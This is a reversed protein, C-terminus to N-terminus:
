KDESQTPADKSIEGDIQETKPANRGVIERFESVDVEKVNRAYVKSRLCVGSYDCYACAKIKEEGKVNLPSKAIYGEEIERSAKEALRMVYNCADDFGDASLLEGQNQASYIIEGTKKITKRKIPYVASAFDFNGNFGEDLDEAGDSNVFGNYMYRKEVKDGGKVFRNNMLLYFVGQPTILGSSRLANLYVFLQIRDGYLINSPTFDIGSKSKYDIVIAKNRYTDIRDIIGNFNLKRYGNYIEMGAMDANSDSGFRAELKYPRFKSVQMNAVLRKVVYVAQNILQNLTLANSKEEFLFAYDANKGVEDKFIDRVIEEIEAESKDACDKLSFYREMVTHLLIGTDKVELGAVDKRKLNLVFENFHLFPCKFYKEFQSVSTREGNFMVDGVGDLQLEEVRGGLLGDVYNRGKQRCAITYMVDMIEDLTDSPTLEGSAILSQLALFEQLVNGQSSVYDAFEEKGWTGDPESERSPKIDMLSCLYEIAASPLVETGEASVAPYSITLSRRARTLMMLANLRESANRRRCDPQVDVNMESWAVYERESVIGNDVHEPPFKGANAGIVFMHDIGFYRSQSTEGIFVSDSYLPINSIGVSEVATAFIGCFEDWSATNNGLMAECQELISYIKKESQMTVASLSSFGNDDQWKALKEVADSANFNQLFARVSEIHEKILKGESQLPSLTRMVKERVREAIIREEDEGLTFQCAFRSYETNYKCCYNDFVCVDDFDIGLLRDKAFAIVSAKSFNDGAARIASTLFKTLSQSSLPQKVDAYFPIEFDDFVSKVYPMYSDFDCCVIAIDKYRSSHNKVLDNIKRALTKVECAIDNCAIIKTRGDKRGAAPAYSYLGRYIVDADGTLKEEAYSINPAAGAMEALSILREKVDKPFVHKNEGNSDVLCIHTNDANRMIAGIIEYEVNSFATFDSIYAEYDNLAGENILDSLAQLKSTGDSYKEQIYEVYNRYIKVIDKTKNAIRKPLKDVIAEMRKVPINSNRIQSIAAYMDNAFEANRGVKGFCLLEDKVDDIVKRLLMIESQKDLLRKKNQLLKNALRPFSSVEIDFTGKLELHELVAKQYSLSFRDPVFLIHKKAKGLRSKLRDLIPKSDLTNTLILDIM